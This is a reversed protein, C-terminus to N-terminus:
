PAGITLTHAVPTIAARVEDQLARQKAFLRATVVELANRGEADDGLAARAWRFKTVAEKIMPTEFEQKKAVMGDIKAFPECFPNDPFEAALNIGKELLARPFVKAATGWSVRASEGPVNKVILTLRNLDDNFPVFPVISRTSSPSKADGFFCFPYRTSRLEVVGKSASLVTHGKTATAGSQLDVTITGIEGDIGMAKLFAYAMVVQGNPQPHFGDAGCVDYAQGLAAKAKLQALMMQDHVNAFRLGTERAIDRAIDRLHALNDNYAAVPLDGRKFADLDVAGPSGVVVTAGAGLVTRVIERMSQGYANGIGPEYRRYSGDNMGYCTTVVDPRFPLCDNALRAQFGPAREGSWGFQMCALDMDALCMLLYDEIYRSYLKQETISDGAIAIRQGPKLVTAPVPPTKPLERVYINKFYL